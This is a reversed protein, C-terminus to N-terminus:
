NKGGVTRKSRERERERESHPFVVSLYGAEVEVDRRGSVAVTRRHEVEFLVGGDSVDVVLLQRLLLLVLPFRPGDLQPRLVFPLGELHRVFEELGGHVEFQHVHTLLPDLFHHFFTPIQFQLITQKANIIKNKVLKTQQFIFNQFFM